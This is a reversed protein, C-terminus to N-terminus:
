KGHTLRIVKSDRDDIIILFTGGVYGNPLTGTLLWYNDLHYIEYPRQQTINNKGYIGFLIPEAVSIATLSDKIIATKSNVVNHQNTGTLTSKLEKEANQRGLTLRDLKSQGFAAFCVTILSIILIIKIKRM